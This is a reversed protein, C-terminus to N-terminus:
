MKEVLYINCFICVSVDRSRSKFYRPKPTAAPGATKELSVELTLELEKTSILTAGDSKLRDSFKARVTNIM